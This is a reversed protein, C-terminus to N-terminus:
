GGAGRTWLKVAGDGGVHYLWEGEEVEVRKAVEGGDESAQGGREGEDHEVSGGRTARLVGSVDEAWGTGLRRCAMVCRAVYTMGTLFEASERELPTFKGISDKLEDEPGAAQLFPRDAPLALITAHVQSRLRLLTMTLDASTISPKTTELLLSPSDLVLLVRPQTRNSPSTFSRIATLITDHVHPLYPGAIGLPKQPPHSQESPKPSAPPPPSPRAAPSSRSPITPQPEFTSPPTFLNTLGDVFVLRRKEQLQVLDLGKLILILRWELLGAVGKESTAGHPLSDCGVVAKRAEIRWFEWDRMWSVLVVRINGNAEAGLGAGPGEGDVGLGVDGGHRRRDRSGDGLAQALFRLLLWNASAGLVSTVLTLSWKSPLQVYSQLLPPIRSTM